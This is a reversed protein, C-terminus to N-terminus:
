DTELAGLSADVCDQAEDRLDPRQVFAGKALRCQIIAADHEGLESLNQGHALLIRARLFQPLQPDDLRALAPALTARAEDTRDANALVTTLALIADLRAPSAVPHRTAALEAVRSLTQIALAHRGQEAHASGIIRLVKSIRLDADPLERQYIALAREAWAISEDYDQRISALNAMNTLCMAETPSGPGLVLRTVELSEIMHTRAQELNGRRGHHIGLNGLARAYKLSQRGHTHEILDLAQLYLPEAEEFRRQRDRITALTQVRAAQLEPPNGLRQLSADLHSLAANAADDDLTHLGELSMLMVWSWSASADANAGSALHAAATLADRAVATDGADRAILGQEQLVDATLPDHGLAKAQRLLDDVRASAGNDGDLDRDQRLERLADRVTQVATAKDPPPVAFGHRVFDADNCDEPPLLGEARQVTTTLDAADGRRLDALLASLARERTQVCMWRRDRDRTETAAAAECAADRSSQWRDVYQQLRTLVAPSLSGARLVATDIGAEPQECPDHPTPASTWAAVGLSGSALLLMTATATRSRRVSARALATRLAAVSPYRATPVPDLGRRLVRQVASPVRRARDDNRPTEDPRRGLLAEWATACVSYQDARADAPAGVLIEPAVYGPTGAAGTRSSADPGSGRGESEPTQTEPLRALGFDAVRGRGDAGVLINNPTVDRHVLGQGHAAHLGRCADDIVRLVERWSRAHEALWARLSGGEVFECALFAGAASLEVDYVDVVNPHSLMGLAQAERRLRARVDEPAHSMVKLAVQRQLVTDDGLYVVSMGGVGLVRRPVYRGDMYAAAPADDRGLGDHGLGDSQPDLARALEVLLARCSACEDIHAEIADAEASELVGDVFGTLANDDPCRM